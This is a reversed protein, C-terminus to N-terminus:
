PQEKEPQGAPADAPDVPLAAPENTEAAASQAAAKQEEEMIEDARSKWPRKGFINEVDETFIVERDMLIQALRGHKEANDTLIQRARAYQEAILKKVEADIKEATKESYPKTFNYEQNNYYCLNALDDSM